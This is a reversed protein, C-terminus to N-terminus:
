PTLENEGVAEKSTSIAGSTGFWWLYCPKENRLMDVAAPFATDHFYLSIVGDTGQFPAPLADKHLFYANAFHKNGKDFFFILGTAFAGSYQYLTYSQIETFAM